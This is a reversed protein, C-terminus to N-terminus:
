IESMLDDHEAERVLALKESTCDRGGSLSVLDPIPRKLSQQKEEPEISVITSM